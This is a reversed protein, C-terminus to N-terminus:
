DAIQRVRSGMLAYYLMFAEGFLVIFWSWRWGGLVDALVGQVLPLIAGGVVGIMFM